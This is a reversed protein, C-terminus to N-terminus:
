NNTSVIRKSTALIVFMPTVFGSLRKPGATKQHARPDPPEGRSLVDDRLSM